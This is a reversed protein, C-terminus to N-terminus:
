ENQEGARSETVAGMLADTIRKIKKTNDSPAANGPGMVFDSLGTNVPKSEVCRYWESDDHLGQLVCTRIMERLCDHGHYQVAIDRLQNIMDRLIHEKM